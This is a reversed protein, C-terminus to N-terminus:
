RVLEIDLDLGLSKWARDATLVPLTHSEALALCACDAFSMGKLRGRERLGATLLAQEEDFPVIQIGLASVNEYVDPLEGGDRSLRALVETLNVASMMASGICGAVREHGPEGLILVLVASADLVIM